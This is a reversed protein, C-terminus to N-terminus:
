TQLVVISPFATIVRLLNAALKILKIKPELPSNGDAGLFIMTKQQPSLSIWSNRLDEDLGRLM